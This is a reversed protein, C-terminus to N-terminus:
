GSTHAPRHPSEQTAAAIGCPSGRGENSGVIGLVFDMAVPLRETTREVCSLAARFRSGFM